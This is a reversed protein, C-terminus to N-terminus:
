RNVSSTNTLRQKEAVPTSPDNKLYRHASTYSVGMGDGILFIVNRIEPSKVPKTKAEAEPMSFMTSLSLTSLAFIPIIRKLKM